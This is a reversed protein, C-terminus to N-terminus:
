KKEPEEPKLYYKQAEPDWTLRNQIKQDWSQLVKAQRVHEAHGTNFVFGPFDDPMRSFVDAYFYRTGSDNWPMENNIVPESASIDGWRARACLLFDNLTYECAGIRLEGTEKLDEGGNIWALAITAGRSGKAKAKVFAKQVDEDEFRVLAIAATQRVHSDPDKNLANIFSPVARKDSIEDLEWAAQRRVACDPDNELAALLPEFVRGDEIKSLAMVAWTRVKFDSDNKLATILPEVVSPGGIRGLAGAAYWRVRCDSDNKLATILPEVVRVDRISGLAEAAQHRVLESEDNELANILPIVAHTDGCESLGMASLYRWYYDTEQTLIYLCINRKAAPNNQFHYWELLEGENPGCAYKKKHIVAAAAHTIKSPSGQLIRELEDLADKWTNGKMKELVLCAGIIRADSLSGLWKKIYPFAWKGEEAIAKAAVERTAVDDSDLRWEQVKFWIPEYVYFGALLLGFVVVIGIGLKLFLKNM